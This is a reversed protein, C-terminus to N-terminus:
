ISVVCSLQDGLASGLECGDWRATSSGWSSTGGGGTTGCLFSWLLLGLFLLLLLGVLVHAETEEVLRIATLISSLFFIPRCSLANPQCIERIRTQGAHAQFLRRQSSM